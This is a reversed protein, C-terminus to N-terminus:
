NACEMRLCNNVILTIIGEVNNLEGKRKSSRPNCKDIDNIGEM